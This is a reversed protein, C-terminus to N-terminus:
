FYTYWLVEQPGPPPPPSPSVIDPISPPLSNSHLTYISNFLLNGCEWPRINYPSPSIYNIDKRYVAARADFIIVHYTFPTGLNCKGTTLNTDVNLM